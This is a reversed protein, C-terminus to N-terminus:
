KELACVILAAIMTLPIVVLFYMRFLDDEHYELFRKFKKM